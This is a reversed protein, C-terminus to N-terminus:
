QNGLTFDLDFEFARAKPDYAFEHPELPAKGEELVDLPSWGQLFVEPEAPEMYGEIELFLQSSPFSIGREAPSPPLAAAVEQRHLAAKRRIEAKQAPDAAQVLREEVPYTLPASTRVEVKGDKETIEIGEREEPPLDELKPAHRLTIVLPPVAPPQNEILKGLPTNQWPNPQPLFNLQQINSAAESGDFGMNLMCDYMNEAAQGFSPAIVHAYAMNLEAQSRARAYPMRMVRGLLQEVDTNSKINAVSCFVYAFSCDWGEKLAEVTIIYKIRCQRDFLDIGDLERQDGTAVAIEEERIGEQSLLLNKLKEVTCEQNRKEAQFLAIPRLYDADNAALGELKARTGLAALVADEWADHEAVRFPLKVMEEAKLASPFVRFLVNSEVPTATFELVCAPNIRRMVEGSLESVMKHAEDVIVLPRLQHLMNVFSYLVKGQGDKDLGPAANPLLAFHPEFNENHGYVKRYEKNSEAVRLTQMTAIVICVSNLADKARINNVEGIDFVKVNQLGFAENLAQRYPHSAMRLAEATQSRITNTPVLWLVFPRERELYTGAAVGVSHAALLTKGGGTPLRLCVYPVNLLEWRPHYSQVGKESPHARVVRNFAEAPGRLKAEALYEHLVALTEKQYEKLAFM